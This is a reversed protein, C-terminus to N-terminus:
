HFHAMGLSINQQMFPRNPSCTQHVHSHESVLPILILHPYHASEFLRCKEQCSYFQYSFNLDLLSESTWVNLEQM